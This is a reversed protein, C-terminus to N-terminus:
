NTAKTKGSPIPAANDLGIEERLARTHEGLVAMTEGPTTDSGTM